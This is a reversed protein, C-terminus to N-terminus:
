RGRPRGKWSGIFREGVVDDGLGAVDFDAVGDSEDIMGEGDGADNGVAFARAKEM